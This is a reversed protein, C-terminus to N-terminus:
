KIRLRNMEFELMENLTSWENIKQGDDLYAYIRADKILYHCITSDNYHSSGFLFHGPEINIDSIWDTNAFYINLPEVASRNVLGNDIWTAPFSYLAIKNLYAGNIQTLFERYGSPIKLEYEAEIDRLTKDDVAPFIIIKYYQPAVSTDRGLKIESTHQSELEAQYKLCENKIADLGHLNNIRKLNDTNDTNSRMSCSFLITSLLLTCSKTM